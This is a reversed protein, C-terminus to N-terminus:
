GTSRGGGTSAAPRCARAGRGRGRCWSRAGLAGVEVLPDVAAPSGWRRPANGAWGNPPSTVCSRTVTLQDPHPRQDEDAQVQRSDEEHRLLRERGASDAPTTAVVGEGKLADQLAAYTKASDSSPTGKLFTLFTGTFEGYLDIEGSKVLPYVTETPGINDKFTIDYGNAALAQGYAQSLLQAGAFDKSGVTLKTGEGTTGATDLNNRKLFDAAVDKPDLKDNFVALAMKNYEDLSLKGNVDDVIKQVDDTAKDEKIVATPNDSPQLGKDDELLVFDPKIVSSGTFLLGVDITGDDLSKM